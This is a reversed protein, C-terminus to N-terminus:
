FEVKLMPQHRRVTELLTSLRMNGRGEPGAAVVHGNCAEAPQCFFLTLLCSRLQEWGAVTHTTAGGACLLVCLLSLLKLLDTELNLYKVCDMNTKIERSIPICM